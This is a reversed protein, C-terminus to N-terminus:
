SHLEAAYHVKSPWIDRRDVGRVLYVQGQQMAGLVELVKGCLVSSPHHGTEPCPLAPCPPAQTPHATLVIEVNQHIVSNLLDDEEIGSALLNALVEDSGKSTATQAGGRRRAASPVVIAYGSATLGLQACAGRDADQSGTDINSLIDHDSEM